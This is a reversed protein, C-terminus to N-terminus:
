RPMRSACPRTLAQASVAISGPSRQCSRMSAAMASASTATSRTETFKRLESNMRFYSNGVSSAIMFPSRVPRKRRM